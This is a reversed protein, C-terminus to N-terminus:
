GKLRNQISELNKLRTVPDVENGSLGISKLLYNFVKPSGEDQWSYPGVSRKYYAGPDDTMLGLLSDATKVYNSLTNGFAISNFDLMARYDDLGYGPFPIFAQNENLTATALFLAQNSMYGGLNFEFGSDATWPLPLSGSKQRLKEYRDEDDEDYDFLLKTLMGAIMLIGLETALKKLAVKERPTMFKLDRGLTKLNSLITAISQTYYGVQMDNAGVDWRAQPNLFNGRYGWRNIFMRVFHRKLFTMLRYLLYREGQSKDHKAYAGNLNRNVAQVKGKMQKFKAGGLGWVPDIGEKLQLQGDKVQWAEIYPISKTVGNITQDVMQHNMMGGFLGLSANLQTWERTNTFWNNSLMDKTFTRSMGEAFKGSTDAFKQDPDFAQYIQVNLSKPGYKYIQFSVEAATLNGWVSGRALSTPSVNKGGASEIMAQFRAGFSNKLASPIDFAFFAMSSLGLLNNMTKNLGTMDATAGAQTKGEFEREIYANITKARVSQGKKTAFRTVNREIFDSKSAKSMDKIAGEEGNVVDQLARVQPTMEILKKQREASQMYRMMGMLVDPSTEDIDLDYNGSIPIGSVENDFLDLNVYTLDTEKNYGQEFDDKAAAFSAKVNKAWATLKNKTDGELITENFEKRYRPLYVGLMSNKNLGEQNELHYYLLKNTLEFQTANRNKINYYEENRYKSNPKPLWRGAYDVTALSLDGQELAEKMTVKKTKYQDKVEQKFYDITPIGNIREVVDGVDNLIDTTEYYKDEVPRTVSWAGTRRYSEVLEGKKNYYSVLIHNKQFWDKFKPSDEMLKDAVDKMLLQDATVLDIETSGFTEILYDGDVSSDADEGPKLLENVIDVYQTTPQKTSISALQDYLSTLEMIEADSLGLNEKKDKLMEYMETRTEDEFPSDFIVGAIYKKVDTEYDTMFQKEKVTIGQLTSLEDKVLEYEENLEKIRKLKAQSMSTGDPQGDDDRYGAMQDNLEQVIEDAKLKAKIDNPLSSKIEAIRELIEQRKEYFSPKLKVRTNREIWEERLKNFSDSGAPHKTDVLQQEYAKLAGQFMGKREVWEYYKATLTRHERLRNSIALDEGQKMTGDPNAISYLAQYDKWLLNLEDRYEKDYRDARTELSGNLNQIKQLIQKRAASAKKGVEDKTLLKEREQVEDTYDHYFEQLLIDLEGELVDLETRDGSEAYKLQANKIQDKKRSIEIEYGKVHHIFAQRDKETLKGDKGYVGQKEVYSVLDRLAQPKNKNYGLKDLLDQIEQSQKNYKQQVTTLVDMMNTNVYQALGFIVPDQINMFSEMWAGIVGTDGKEGRLWSKLTEKDVKSNEYEATWKTILRDPAGKAKLEGIIENYYRDVEENLPLLIESLMESSGELNLKGSLDDSTKLTAEISGIVELIPGSVEGADAFGKRIEAMTQRWESTLQRYYYFKKVKSPDNKRKSLEQMHLVMKDSMSKIQYITNVFATAREHTYEFEKALNDFKDTIVTRYDKLNKKIIELDSEGFGTELIDVMEALNENNKLKSAHSNVVRYVKDIANKIAQAGEETGSKNVVDEVQKSTDKLFAVIDKQSVSELNFDINADLFIESLEELSTNENLESIAVNQGVYKRILQKIAYGLNSLFKMFKESLTREKTKDISAKTLARVLVEEKFLDSEPSLDKELNTVLNVLVEGESTNILDNYLKNFLTPNEKQIARVFPHAFEHFATEPTLKERIFYVNGGVFFGAEGTYAKNSAQIITAAEQETVFTYPIGLRKSFNQIAFDLTESAIRQDTDRPSLNISDFIASFGPIKIALDRLMEIESMESLPKYNSDGKEEALEGRSTLKDFVEDVSRVTGNHELYDKTAQFLGFREVLEDWEPGFACSNAM